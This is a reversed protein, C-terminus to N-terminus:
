LYFSERRCDMVKYFDMKLYCSIKEQHKQFPCSLNLFTGTFWLSTICLDLVLFGLERYKIVVFDKVTARNATETNSAGSKGM